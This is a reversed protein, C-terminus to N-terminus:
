NLLDKRAHQIEAPTPSYEIGRKKAREIGNLLDLLSEPIPEPEFEWLRRCIVCTHTHQSVKTDLNFSKMCAIEHRRRIRCKLRKLM